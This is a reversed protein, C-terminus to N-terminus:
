EPWQEEAEQLDDYILITNKLAALYHDMDDQLEEPTEGMPVTAKETCGEPKGTKHYYVEHIAYTEEGTKEDTKQLVRYNWTM